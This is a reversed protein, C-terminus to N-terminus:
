ESPAGPAASRAMIASAAEHHFPGVLDRQGGVGPCRRGTAGANRRRPGPRLHGGVGSRWAPLGPRSPWAEFRRRRNATATAAEPRRAQPHGRGPDWKRAPPRSCAVQGGMAVVLEDVIGPRPRVSSVARAQVPSTSASSFRPPGTGPDRGDDEVGGHRGASEGTSVVVESAAFKLANEILNAVVPGPTGTPM